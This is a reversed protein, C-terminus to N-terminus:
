SWPMRPSTSTTAASRGETTDESTQRELEGNLEAGAIIVYAGIYLWLMIVVVAGLAGYTENYSGFNSTYLSFGVSAILWVVTAVVAGPSVWKWRPDARNPAYRYILALAAVIVVAALPWRVVMLVDRAVRAGGVDSILQPGIVLGGLAAAGLLLLGFTLLLSTLRLRLFGRTEEQHYARTVATMLNKVGNSATWLAAALGILAGLQLGSPSSAVISSLQSEVLSQVEDPAASFLNDVHSEIEAPDAVLGYLSVLAVMTPVLALLSYFAVGAALLSVDDRKVGGKVRVAVDKLGRPPVETPRAAGRGRPSGRGRRPGAWRRFLSTTAAM